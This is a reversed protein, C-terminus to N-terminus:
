RKPASADQLPLLRGGSKSGRHPCGEALRGLRTSWSCPLPVRSRFVPSSLISDCYALAFFFYFIHTFFGRGGFKMGGENSQGSSCRWLVPWAQSDPAGTASVSPLHGPVRFTPPQRPPLNQLPPNLRPSFPLDYPSTPHRPPAYNTLCSQHRPHSSTAPARPLDLCTM